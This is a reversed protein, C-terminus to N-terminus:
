FFSMQNNEQDRIVIHLRLRLLLFCNILIFYHLGCLHNLEWLPSWYKECPGCTFICNVLQSKCPNKKYINLYKFLFQIEYIYILRWEWELPLLIQINEAGKYWKLPGQEEFWSTFVPVICFNNHSINLNSDFYHIYIPHSNKQMHM